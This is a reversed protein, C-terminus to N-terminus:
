YLANRNCTRAQLNLKKTKKQKRTDNMFTSEHDHVNDENPDPKNELGMFIRNAKYKDDELKKKECTQRLEENADKLM